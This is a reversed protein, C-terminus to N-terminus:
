TESHTTGRRCAHQLCQKRRQMSGCQTDLKGVALANGCCHWHRASCFIFAPRAPGHAQRGARTQMPSTCLCTRSFMVHWRDAYRCLM